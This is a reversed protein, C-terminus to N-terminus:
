AKRLKQTKLELNLSQNIQSWSQQFRKFITVNPGTSLPLKKM